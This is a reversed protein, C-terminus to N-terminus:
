SSLKKGYSKLKEGVTCASICFQHAYTKGKEKRFAAKLFCGNCYTELLSDVEEFLQKRDLLRECREIKSLLSKIKQVDLPYPM